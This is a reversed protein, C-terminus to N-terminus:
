IKKELRKLNYDPFEVQLDSNTIVKSPLYTSIKIM